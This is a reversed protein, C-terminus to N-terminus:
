LFIFPFVSFYIKFPSVACLSLRTDVGVLQSLMKFPADIQRSVLVNAGEVRTGSLSTNSAGGTALSLAACGPQLHRCKHTGVASSRRRCEVFGCREVSIQPRM